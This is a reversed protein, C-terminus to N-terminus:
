YWEYGALWYMGRTPGYVRIPTGDPLYLASVRRTGFLGTPESGLAARVSVGCVPLDQILEFKQVDWRTDDADLVEALVDGTMTEHCRGGSSLSGLASTCGFVLAAVLAVLAVQTKRNAM